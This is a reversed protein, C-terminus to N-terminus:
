KLMEVAERVAKEIDNEDLVGASGEPKVKDIIGKLIKLDAEDLEVEGIKLTPAGVVLNPPAYVWQPNNTTTTVNLLNNDVTVEDFTATSGNSFTVYDSDNTGM